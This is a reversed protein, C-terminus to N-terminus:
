LPGAALLRAGKVGDLVIFAKQLRSIAIRKSRPTEMRYAARRKGFWDRAQETPLASAAMALFCIVMLGLFAPVFTGAFDYAAGVVIGSFSGFVGVGPVHDWAHIQTYNKSGFVERILLPLSVSMLSDQVGFLVASVILFVPNHLLVFGLIGLVILVLEIITTRQVGLKDNLWGMVLKDVVSGVSQASVVAAAFSSTFGVSEVYGPLHQEIGGHIFSAIGAFVFLCWFALSVVAVKVAVGRVVSAKGVVKNPVLGYPVAGM